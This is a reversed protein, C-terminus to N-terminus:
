QSYEQNLILTRDLSNAKDWAIKLETHSYGNSTFKNTILEFQKNKLEIHSWIVAVRRYQSYPISNFLHALAFSGRNLLNPSDTPKIYIDTQLNGDSIDVIIDLFNVIKGFQIKALDFVVGYQSM